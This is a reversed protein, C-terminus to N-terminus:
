LQAPGIRYSYVQVGMEVVKEIQIALLAALCEPVVPVVAVAVTKTPAM